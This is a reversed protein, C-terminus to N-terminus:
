SVVFRALIITTREDGAQITLCWQKAAAKLAETVDVAPMNVLFVGTADGVAPTVTMVALEAGDADLVTARPIYGTFDAPEWGCGELGTIPDIPHVEWGVEKNVSDGVKVIDCTTGINFAPDCAEPLDTLAIPM